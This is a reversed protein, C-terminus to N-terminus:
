GSRKLSVSLRRNPVPSVVAGRRGPGQELAVHILEGGKGADEPLQTSIVTGMKCIKLTLCPAYCSLEPSRLWGKLM